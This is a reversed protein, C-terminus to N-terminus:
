RGRRAARIVEWDQNVMHRAFARSVMEYFSPRLTHKKRLLDSFADTRLLVESFLEAFTPGDVTTQWAEELSFHVSRALELFIERRRDYDRLLSLNDLIEEDIDM